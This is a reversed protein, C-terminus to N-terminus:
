APRTGDENTAIGLGTLDDPSVYDPDRVVAPQITLRGPGRTAAVVRLHDLAAEYNGNYRDVTRKFQTRNTDFYDCWEAITRTKGRYTVLSAPRGRRDRHDHPVDDDKVFKIRNQADTLTRVMDVVKDKPLKLAYRRMTSTAIGFRKAWQSAFLTEGTKESTLGYKSLMMDHAVSRAHLTNARSGGMSSQRRDLPPAWYTNLPCFDGDMDIRQLRHKPTPPLGMILIFKEFTNFHHSISIGRGGCSHYLVSREDLVRTRMNRYKEKAARTLPGARKTKPHPADNIEALTTM